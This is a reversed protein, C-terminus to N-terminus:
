AQGKDSRDLLNNGVRIGLLFADHNQTAFAASFRALFAEELVSQGFPLLGLGFAAGLLLLNQSRLFGSEKALEQASLPFVVHCHASITNQIDACDPYPRKTRVLEFPPVPDMNLLVRTQPHMRPVARLGELPEFALVVDAEGRSIHNDFGASLLVTCEVSGGRQSMGHLQGVRVPFGARQAADGLIQACTLLGQGGVGVLLLTSPQWVTYTM